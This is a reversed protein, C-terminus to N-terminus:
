CVWVALVVFALGAADKFWQAFGFGERFFYLFLEYQACHGRRRLSCFASPLISL